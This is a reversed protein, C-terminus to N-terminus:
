LHSEPVEVRELSKLLGDLISQLHEVCDSVVRSENRPPYELISLRCFESISEAGSAHSAQTIADFEDLTVRINIGRSRTGTASAKQQPAQHVHHIASLLPLLDEVTAIPGLAPPTQRSLGGTHM